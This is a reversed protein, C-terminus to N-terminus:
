ITNHKLSELLSISGGDHVHSHYKLINYQRLDRMYKGGFYQQYLIEM